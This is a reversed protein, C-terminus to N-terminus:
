VEQVAFNEATKQVLSPLHLADGSDRGHIEIATALNMRSADPPQSIAPRSQNGIGSLTSGCKSHSDDALPPM